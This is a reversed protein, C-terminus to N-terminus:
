EGGDPPTKVTKGRRGDANDATVSNRAAVGSQTDAEGSADTVLIGELVQEGDTVQELCDVGADECKKIARQHRGKTDAIGASQEDLLAIRMRHQEVTAKGWTVAVGNGLSFTVAFLRERLAKHRAAWREESGITEKEIRRDRDRLVQAAQRRVSSRVYAAMQPPVEALAADTATDVDAGQGILETLRHGLLDGPSEYPEFSEGCRPCTVDPGVM